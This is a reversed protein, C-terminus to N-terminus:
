HRHILAKRRRLTYACSAAPFSRGHHDDFRENFLLGPLARLQRV